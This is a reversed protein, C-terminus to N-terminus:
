TPIRLAHKQINVESFQILSTLVNMNMSEILKGYEMEMALGITMIV